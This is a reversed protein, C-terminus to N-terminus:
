KDLEKQTHTGRYKSISVIHIDLIHCNVMQMYAIIKDCSKMYEIEMYNSEDKKNEIVSM